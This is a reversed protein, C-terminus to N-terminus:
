IQLNFCAKTRILRALAIPEKLNIPSISVRTDIAQGFKTTIPRSICPPVVCLVAFRQKRDNLRARENKLLLGGLDHCPRKHSSENEIAGVPDSARIM